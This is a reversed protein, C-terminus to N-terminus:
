WDIHYYGTNMTPTDIGHWPSRGEIFLRPHQNGVMLKLTERCLAVGRVLQAQM